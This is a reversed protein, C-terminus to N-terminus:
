GVIDPVKWGLTGGGLAGLIQGYWPLGLEEAGRYGGVAGATGMGARLLFDLTPSGTVGGGGGPAATTPDPTMLYGAGAGAAGGRLVDGFGHRKAIEQLTARDVVDIGQMMPKSSLIARAEAPAMEAVSRGAITRAAGREAGGLGARFLGRIGRGVSPGLAAGAIIPWIGQKEMRENMIQDLEDVFARRAISAYKEDTFEIPTYADM